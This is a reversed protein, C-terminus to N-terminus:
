HSLVGAHRTTSKRSLITQYLRLWGLYIMFKRAPLFSPRM